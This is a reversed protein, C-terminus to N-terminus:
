HLRKGVEGIADDILSEAKGDSIRAKIVEGAAAVATAAATNRVERVANQEAMGIQEEAARLRRAIAEQLEAKAREAAAEAEAKAHEVIDDAQSQVENQKREFEAFTAQAEERLRRAEDLDSKIRVARDDLSKFILKHVGYYVLVAFFIVFSVTVVVDSKYLIEM